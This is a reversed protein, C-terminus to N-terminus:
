IATDAAGAATGRTAGIAGRGRVETSAMRMAMPLSRTPTDTSPRLIGTRQVTAGHPHITRITTATGGAATIIDTLTAARMTDITATIIAERTTRIHTGEPTIAEAMAGIPTAMGAMPMAIVMLTAMTGPMSM